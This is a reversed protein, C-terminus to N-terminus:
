ECWFIFFFSRSYLYASIVALKKGYAMKWSYCICIERSPFAFPDHAIVKGMWFVYIYYKGHGHKFGRESIEYDGKSRNGM